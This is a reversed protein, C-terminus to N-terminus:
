FLIALYNIYLYVTGNFRSCINKIVLTLLLFYTKRIQLTDQHSSKRQPWVDIIFLDDFVKRWYGQGPGIETNRLFFVGHSLLFPWASGRAWCWSHRSYREVTWLSVTRILQCNSFFSMTWEGHEILGRFM